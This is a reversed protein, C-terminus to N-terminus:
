IKEFFYISKSIDVMAVCLYANHLKKKDVDTCKERKTDIKRNPKCLM